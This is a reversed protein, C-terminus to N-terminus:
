DAPEPFKPLKSIDEPEHQIITVAKLNQSIKKFRDLSALSKARDDNFIPIGNNELNERFHAVDGSLLVPGTKALRVLLGHHGPTHGPLDLMIVSDDGFVDKDGSVEELAGGGTLWHDLPKARYDGPKSRLVDVDGKGLLLKAQPFDSAQGTHDAHYHSIGIISISEPAVKIQALQDKITRTLTASMAESSKFPSNLLTEPFGTDWLMYVDGHQILYCSATLRKSKGTYAFVDSFVDLNNVQVAGCDLRWMRVSPTAAAAAISFAFLLSLSVIIRRM